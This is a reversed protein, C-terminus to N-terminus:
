HYNLIPARESFVRNRLVFLFSHTHVWLFQYDIYILLLIFANGLVLTVTLSLLDFQIFSYFM